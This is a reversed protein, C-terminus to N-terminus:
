PRYRFLFENAHELEVVNEEIAKELAARSVDLRDDFSSLQCLFAPANKLNKELFAGQHNFGQIHATHMLAQLSRLDHLIKRVKSQLSPTLLELRIQRLLREYSDVPNHARSFVQRTTRILCHDGSFNSANCPGGSTASRLMSESVLRKIGGSFLVQNVERYIEEYSPEADITLSQGDCTRLCLALNAGRDARLCDSDAVALQSLGLLICIALLSRM